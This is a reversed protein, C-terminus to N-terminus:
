RVCARVYACKHMYTSLLDSNYFGDAPLLSTSSCYAVHQPCTSCSGTEPSFTFLPSTCSYCGVATTAQGWSCSPLKVSLKQYADPLAVGRSGSILRFTVDHTSGPPALLQLQNFMATGNVPLVKSIGTLQCATCNGFAATAQVSLQQAVDASVPEGLQDLVPLQVQQLRGGEAVSTLVAGSSQPAAESVAAEAPFAVVLGLQAPGTTADLEEAVALSSVSHKGPAAAASHDAAVAAALARRMQQHQQMLHRGSKAPKNTAKAPTVAKGPAAAVLVSANTVYVDRQLTNGGSSDSTVAVTAKGAAQKQQRRLQRLADGTVQGFHLSEQQLVFPCTDSGEACAEVFLGAGFQASNNLFSGPGALEFRSDLLGVCLGGGTGAVACAPLTEQASPLSNPGRHGASGKGVTAPEAQLTVASSLGADAAAAAVLTVQTEAAATASATASNAVFNCGAVRSGSGAALICAGGGSSAENETFELSILSVLNCGVCSVGGGTQGARNQQLKSAKLELVDCMSCAVAGGQMGAVNSILSANVMTIAWQGSSSAATPAADQAASAEAAADAPLLIGGAAAGGFWGAVNGVFSGGTVKLAQHDGAAGLCVAGGAASAFNDKFTTNALQLTSSDVFVGGGRGAAGSATNSDISSDQLLLEGQWVYVAGGAAVQVEGIMYQITESVASTSSAAASSGAAAATNAAMSAGNLVAKGGHRM